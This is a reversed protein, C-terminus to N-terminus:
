DRYLRSVVLAAYGAIALAAVVLLATSVMEVM